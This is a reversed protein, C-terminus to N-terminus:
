VVVVGVRSVDVHVEIQRGAFSSEATYFLWDGGNLAAPKTSIDPFSDPVIPSRTTSLRGHRSCCSKSLLMDRCASYQCPRFIALGNYTSNLLTARGSV